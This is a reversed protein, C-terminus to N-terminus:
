ALYPSKNIIEVLNVENFGMGFSVMRVGVVDWRTFDIMPPEKPLKTSHYSQYTYEAKESYKEAANKGDDLWTTCNNFVEPM